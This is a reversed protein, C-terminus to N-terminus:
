INKWHLDEMKLDGWIDKLVEDLLGFPGHYKSVKFRKMNSSVAPGGDWLKDLAPFGIVPFMLGQVLRKNRYFTKEDTNHFAANVPTMQPLYEAGYQDIIRQGFEELTRVALVYVHFFNVRLVQHGQNFEGLLSQEMKASINPLPETAMIRGIRRENVKSAAGTKKDPKFAEQRAWFSGDSHHDRKRLYAWSSLQEPDIRGQAQVARPELMGALVRIHSATRKNPRTPPRPGGGGRPGTEKDYSTNAFRLYRAGFECTPFDGLFIAQKFMDCLSELVPIRTNEISGHAIHSVKYLHLVTGFLSKQNLQRCGGFFAWDLLNASQRGAIVPSQGLLDFHKGTLVDNVWGRLEDTYARHHSGTTLSQESDVAQVQKVWYQLEQAMRLAQLRCNAPNPKDDKWAFIKCSDLIIQIYAAYVASVPLNACNEDDRCAYEESVVCNVIDDLPLVCELAQKDDARRLRWYSLLISLVAYHDQFVDKPLHERLEKLVGPCYEGPDAVVQVPISEPGDVLMPVIYKHLPLCQFHDLFDPGSLLIRKFHNVAISLLRLSYGSQARGISDMPQDLPALSDPPATLEHKQHPVTTAAAIDAPPTIRGATQHRGPKDKAKFDKACLQQLIRDCTGIRKTSEQKAMLRAIMTTTLTSAVALPLVGDKAKQFYGTMEIATQDLELLWAAPDVLKALPDDLITYNM